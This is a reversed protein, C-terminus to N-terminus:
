LIFTSILSCCSNPPHQMGALDGHMAWAHAHQDTLINVIYCAPQKSNRATHLLCADFRLTQHEGPQVLRGSPNISSVCHLNLSAVNATLCGCPSQLDSDVPKCTNGLQVARLEPTWHQATALMQYTVCFCLLQESVPSLNM